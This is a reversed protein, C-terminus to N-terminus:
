FNYVYNYYFSVIHFDKVTICLTVMKLLKIIPLIYFYMNKNYPPQVTNYHFLIIFRNHYISLAYNVNEKM